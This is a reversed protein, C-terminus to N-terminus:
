FFPIKTKTDNATQPSAFFLFTMEQTLRDGQIYERLGATGGFYTEFIAIGNFSLEYSYMKKRKIKFNFTAEFRIGDLLYTGEADALDEKEINLEFLGNNHLRFQSPGISHRRTLSLFVLNQWPKENKGTNNDSSADAYLTQSVLTLLLFIYLLIPIVYKKFNM